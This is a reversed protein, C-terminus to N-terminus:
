RMIGISKKVFIDNKDIKKSDSECRKIDPFGLSEVCFFALGALGNIEYGSLLRSMGDRRVVFDNKKIIREHSHIFFIFIPM